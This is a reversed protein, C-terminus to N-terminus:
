PTASSSTTPTKFSWDWESGCRRRRRTPSRSGKSGSAPGGRARRGNTGGPSGVHAHRSRRAVQGALSWELALAAHEQGRRQPGRRRGVRRRRRGSRHRLPCRQRRSLSVRPREGPGGSCSPRRRTRWRSLAKSTLPWASREITWVTFRGPGDGRSCRETCGNPANWVNASLAHRDLGDLAALGALRAPRVHTRPPRHGDPAARGRPRAPLPGHVPADRGARAARSLRRLGALMKHFPTVASLLLVTVIALSNKILISGAVVALGYQARAPHAPAIM